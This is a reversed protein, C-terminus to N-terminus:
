NRGITVKLTGKTRNVTVVFISVNKIVIGKPQVIFFNVRVEKSNVKVIGM